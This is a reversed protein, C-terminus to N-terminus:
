ISIMSTMQRIPLIYKVSRKEFIGKFINILIIKLLILYRMEYNTSLKYLYIYNKHIYLNCMCICM